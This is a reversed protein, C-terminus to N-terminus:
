GITSRAQKALNERTPLISTTLASSSGATVTVHNVDKLFQKGHVSILRPM